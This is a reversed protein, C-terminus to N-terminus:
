AMSDVALIQIPMERYGMGLNHSAEPKLNAHSIHRKVAAHSLFLGQSSLQCTQTCHVCVFRTVQVGQGQGGVTPELSTLWHCSEFHLYSQTLALAKALSGNAATM